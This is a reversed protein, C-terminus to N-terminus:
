RRSIRRSRNSASATSRSPMCPSGTSACASGCGRWSTPPEARARRDVAGPRAAARRRSDRHREGSRRRPRSPAAHTRVFQGGEAARTAVSERFAARGTEIRDDSPFVRAFAANVWSVIAPASRFNRQLTLSRLRVAGIGRRKALLFLSMDADRFRYISQMPDGVLFLTRGDGPQWGATLLELLRRQSQSTDQFEDVLLHQIRRDLALLLESPADVQGLARQAALALEVFDVTRREAFAVKLEAALRVLVVQLAALSLWQTETYRADPLAAVTQLAARLAEDIKFGTSCRVAASRAAGAHEPGFGEPKAVRKRWEGQKTLLLAAIGRWAALAVPGSPPPRELALWPALTARLGDSARAPPTGCCRRSRRSCGSTACRPPPRSRTTSSGSCRTKSCAACRLRNARRAAAAM